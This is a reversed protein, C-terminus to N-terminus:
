NETTKIFKKINKEANKMRDHVSQKSIGIQEAIEKYSMNKYFAMEVAERQPPTLVDLSNEILVRSHEIEFEEIKQKRQEAKIKEYEQSEDILYKENYPKNPAFVSDFPATFKECKKQYRRKRKRDRQMFRAVDKTVELKIWQHHIRDYYNIMVLDKSDDKQNEKNDM